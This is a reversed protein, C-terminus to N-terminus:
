KRGRMKRRKAAKYRAAANIAIIFIVFLAIPTLVAAIIMKRKRARQAKKAAEAKSKEEAEKEKALRQKEAEEEAKIREQESYLTINELMDNKNVDAGVSTFYLGYECPSYKKIQSAKTIEGNKGLMWSKFWTGQQSKHEAFGLKSMEFPTKGGFFESPTDYDMVIKNEGYLHVYLKKPTYVGYKEATESFFSKDGSIEVARKMMAANLKHMGHGYEGNFDHSVAVQPKFRRLMEVQFGLADNETYGETAITKLAGEITESYYDPFNSIVPYYKIGVTWLGNLLEHRRRTENKHDTYYVVQIDCGRSAYYPLLGAFFLQDDDSHSSNLLIDARQLPKEWKQVFDPLSGASFAYIDSIKAGGFDVTLESSKFSSVDTLMHLFEPNVTETKEGSKITFEQAKSHFIIYLSSIEGDASLKIEGCEAATLHNGDTLKKDLGTLRLAAAETDAAAVPLGSILLLAALIPLLIKKM